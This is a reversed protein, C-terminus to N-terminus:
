IAWSVNTLVRSLTVLTKQPTTKTPPTTTPLPKTITVTVLAFDGSPATPGSIGSEYTITVSRYYIEGDGPTIAHTGDASVMAGTNDSYGNYEGVSVYSLRTTHGAAPGTSESGDPNQLPKSAIEELLQRALGAATANERMTITQAYTTALLGAVGISAIALVVSAMMADILLFGRAWSARPCAAPSNSRRPMPAENLRHLREM